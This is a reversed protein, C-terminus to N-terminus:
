FRLAGQVWLQQRDTKADANAGTIRSRGPNSGLAYAHSLSLSVYQRTWRLGLGAGELGYENCGCASLAPVGISTRNVWIHGADVFTALQVDGWATPVAADYRLEFTGVAGMDGRGEGVPFARVGYPGGLAFDESSDLNGNAWQGYVRAFLSFRESVYQHRAVSANVRHYQGQTRLTAADAALAGPVRSLDLDGYAWSLSGSTVGGGWFGDRTDISVALSSSWARKDNLRGALSEDSLAKWAFGGSLRVNLERSRILGYDLSLGAHHATGELEAARGVADRNEYGLWAYRVNATLGSAGLPASVMAQAFTQGQSASAFLKSEDGRGTLDTMTGLMNGQERGTSVNGHNDGWFSGSFIPAQDVGVVLNSTNPLSGPTLKARVSVGPLDNLQLLASELDAQVASQTAPRQEFIRGLLTEHIRVNRGREFQVAELRGGVIEIIVVGDTVDQPPLIARALIHGRQQLRATIRDALSQMGSVGLTQGRVETIFRTREADPLLEIRGTLSVDRIEVTQGSGAMPPRESVLEEPKSPRLQPRQSEQRREQERLLAGADQALAPAIVAGPLTCLFVLPWRM